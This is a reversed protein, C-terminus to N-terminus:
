EENLADLFDIISLGTHYAPDADPTAPIIDVPDGNADRTQYAMLHVGPNVYKTLFANSCKAAIDLAAQRDAEDDVLRYCLMAARMTEPLSWWPMDTNIPKRSILDFAKCIGGAEANFAHGFSRQLIKPFLARCADVIARQRGSSAALEQMLLLCKAALGIFELAHGPDSLVGREDRWPKGDDDVAEVFDWPQLEGFQGQNVHADIVHRIFDVARDLWEREGTERAFLAYGGLCLMWTGQARRGPVPRVRNKPDFAQQDLYLRGAAVDDAVRGFYAKAEAVKDALGLHAAAALLGKAYFVDSVNCADTRVEVPSPKGDVIEIATGDPTMSFFLHGGNRHRITEMRDLVERVLATIREIRRGKEDESLAACRPLWQAHGVMAELGRGQIWSYITGRGKFGADGFDEGTILDLKTDIFPYDPRAEYRDLIADLVTVLMTEHDRCARRVGDLTPEDIATANFQM